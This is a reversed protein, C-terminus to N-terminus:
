CLENESTWDKIRSFLVCVDCMEVIFQVFIWFVEPFDCEGMRRPVARRQFTKKPDLQIMHMVLKRVNGDAIKMVVPTPDFKGDKYRLLQPHDFLTEGELFIEAIACGTSFIDMAETVPERRDVKQGANYFREPAVYCRRRQGTCFFFMYDAPNDGPLYTPKHVAFDTLVLWDWSTLMLNETKIDGHTVGAKHSQALANLLQFSLWKKEITTPFPHTHFRDYLHSSFFQRILFACRESEVLEHFPVLGPHTELSFKKQLDKLKRHYIDLPLNEERKYFVKVVVQDNNRDLCEM